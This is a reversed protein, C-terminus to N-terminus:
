IFSVIANATRIKAPPAGRGRKPKNSSSAIPFDQTLVVKMAQKSPSAKSKKAPATTTAIPGKDEKEDQQENYFVNERKRPYNVALDPPLLADDSSSFATPIKVMESKVVDEKKELVKFQKKLDTYKQSESFHM